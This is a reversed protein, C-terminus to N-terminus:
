PAHRPFRHDNVIATKGVTFPDRPTPKRIVPLIDYQGSAHLSTKQAAACYIWSIGAPHM